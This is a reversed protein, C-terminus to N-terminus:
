ARWSTLDIDLCEELENFEDAYRRSLDRRLEHDIKPLPSGKAIVRQIGLRRALDVLPELHRRRLRRGVKVARGSLSQFQPVTSPNVKRDFGDAPFKDDSVGLFKAVRRQTEERQAFIDEFVLPLIRTKDFYPLYCRAYRSYFGWELASPRSALFQQFTGRYNGRQVTFGYNSYARDVPHRLMIMLKAEPLVSAIREPCEECYFYQPSIEGIARYSPAEEPPCFFSEYWGVGQEYHRDFFRVEKRRVPMYIEPHGTLWSHLWTSGGRPVGIGVFTPLTM